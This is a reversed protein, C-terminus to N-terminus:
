NKSWARITKYVGVLNGVSRWTNPTWVGSGTVAELNPFLHDLFSAIANKRQSPLNLSPNSNSPTGSSIHLIRLGHSRSRPKPAFEPIKDTQAWPTMYPECVRLSEEFDENCVLDTDFHFELHDLNPCQLWIATALFSLGPFEAHESPLGLSQSTLKLDVIIRLTVLSAGIYPLANTFIRITPIGLHFPINFFGIHRIGASKELTSSLLDTAERVTPWHTRSEPPLVDPVIGLDPVEHIFRAELTELHPNEQLYLAIALHTPMPDTAVIFALM